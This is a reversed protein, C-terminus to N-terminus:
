AIGIEQLAGATTGVLSILRELADQKARKDGFTAKWVQPDDGGLPLSLERCRCVFVRPGLPLSMAGSRDGLWWHGCGRDGILWPVGSVVSFSFSTDPDTERRRRRLDIIAAPTYAQTVGTAATELWHGWGQEAARAILPVSMYALMSNKLIPQVFANLINGLSGVGYGAVNINDGLVDGAYGVVAELLENVGPMSQGGATIRVPGGPGDIWEFDTIGTRAGDRYITYPHPAQTSLFGPLKYGSTDVTEGTILDYSDEVYNSTYSAIARQMGTALNGGISTGSLWGSKDIIDVFLTGDRWGTGAGEWPEPDGAFWRRPYVMMEADELAPGMVDLWSQKITGPIITPPAVSDTLKRPVPIIQAQAWLGGPWTAPDGIDFEANFNAGQNRLSNFGITALGGWDVPAYLFQVKPQQILSPPLIPNAAMNLNKLEHMDDLFELTVRYGDSSKKLTVGTKPDIRGGIRAGDKEVVVHINSTGRNKDLAWHALFTSRWEEMESAWADFDDLDDGTYPVRTLSMACALEVQISGGDNEKVNLAGGIRAHAYGRHKWNGDCLRISAPRAIRSIRTERIEQAWQDFDDIDTGDYAVIVGSM